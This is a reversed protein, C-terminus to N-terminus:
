GTGVGLALHRTDHAVESSDDEVISVCGLPHQRFGYRVVLQVSGGHNTPVVCGTTTIPGGDELVRTRRIVLRPEGSQNSVGTYAVLGALEDEDIGPILPGLAGM